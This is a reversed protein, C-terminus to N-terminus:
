IESATMYSCLHAVQTNNTVMELGWSTDTLAQAIYASYVEKIPNGPKRSRGNEETRKDKLSCSEFEFALRNDM